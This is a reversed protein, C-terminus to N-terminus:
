KGVRQKIRVRGPVSLYITIGAAATLTTLIVTSLVPNLTVFTFGLYGILLALTTLGFAFGEHGRFQEALTYLTVPMAMNFAMIGLLSPIIYERGLVVLPISVLVSVTGIFRGGLADALIGGLAKGGAAFFSAAIVLMFGKKWPMSFLFGAYSRVLVEFLCFTIAAAGSMLAAKGPKILDAPCAPAEDTRGFLIILIFCVAASIVPIYRGIVGAGGTLMGLSVGVAGSSVFIGSRAMRGHSYVLSDVGGGVHFTANGLGALTVSLVWLSGPLLLGSLLLGCGTAAVPVPGLKDAGAGIIFQLGFALINYLIFAFGAYSLGIAGTKYLEYLLWGCSFDVVFHSITYVALSARTSVHKM